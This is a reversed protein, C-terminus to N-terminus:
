ADSPGPEWGTQQAWDDARRILDWVIPGKADTYAHRQQAYRAALNRKVAAYEAAAPGHTRLFDRFLLPFQESFSGARRVHIHTRPQGLPERFYRKTRETNDARYVFGLRQLPGRFPDVPDLRTVSIQIDIVPKAALGPVSTSGVHDIRIAVPGLARRLRGGLEAFHLPWGPDYDVIWIGPPGSAAEESV